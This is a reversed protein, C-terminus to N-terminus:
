RRGRKVEVADRGAARDVMECYEAFSEEDWAFYHGSEWQTVRSGSYGGFEMGVEAQTVHKGTRYAKARGAWEVAGIFKRKREKVWEELNIERVRDNRTGELATGAKLRARMKRAQRTGFPEVLRLAERM